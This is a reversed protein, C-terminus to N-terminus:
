GVAGPARWAEPWGFLGDFHGLVSSDCRQADGARGSWGHVPLGRLQSLLLLRQRASSGAGVSVGLTGAGDESDLPPTVAGGVVRGRFPSSLGSRCDGLGRHQRLRTAA